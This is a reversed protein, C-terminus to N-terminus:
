REPSSARRQSSASGSGPGNRGRGHDAQPLRVLDRPGRGEGARLHPLLRMASSARIRQRLASRRDASRAHDRSRLRPAAACGTRGGGVSARLGAHAAVLRQLGRTRGPERRRTRDGGRGPDRGGLGDRRGSVPLGRDPSQADGGEHSPGLARARASLCRDDPGSRVLGRTRGRRGRCQRPLRVPGRGSERCPHASDHRVPYARRPPRRDDLRRQVDKHRCHESNAQAFMMLEADTPDRGLAGFRERLWRIEEEDLALGLRRNADRLARQPDPALRIRGLPRPPADRFMDAPVELGDSAGGPPSDPAPDPVLRLRETMRDHLAGLASAGIEPPACVLWLTGREVRRVRDFGCNHAIDTAKSSWPSITGARPVVLARVTGPRNRFADAVCDPGSRPSPDLLRGLAAM